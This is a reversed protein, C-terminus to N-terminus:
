YRLLAAVDGVESLGPIPDAFETEASTAALLEVLENILDVKFVDDAGCVPCTEPTGASLNECARCRLGALKADRTVIMKEVRGVAAAKLVDEPGVVARGGRLYAGKIQEWLREELAPQQYYSANKTLITNCKHTSFM